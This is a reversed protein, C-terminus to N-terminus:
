LDVGGGAPLAGALQHRAAGGRYRRGGARGDAQRAQQQLDQLLVRRIRAPARRRHCRRPAGCTWGRQEGLPRGRSGAGIVPGSRVRKRQGHWDRQQGHLLRASRWRRHGPLLRSLRRPAASRAPPVFAAAVAALGAVAAARLGPRLPAGSASAARPGPHLGASCFRPRIPLTARRVSKSATARRAPVRTALALGVVLRRSRAGRTLTAQRVLRPILIRVYAVPSHCPAAPATDSGTPATPPSHASPTSRSGGAAHGTRAACSGTPPLCGM